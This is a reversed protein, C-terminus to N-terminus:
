RIVPGRLRHRVAGVIRLARRRPGLGGVRELEEGPHEHVDGVRAVDRRPVVAPIGIPRTAHPLLHHRGRPFPREGEDRRWPQRRGLGGAPPRGQKLLDEFDVRERARGAMARHPDDGEDGLGRHDVLDEGVEARADGRGGGRSAGLLAPGRSGLPPV